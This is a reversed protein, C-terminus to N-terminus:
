ATKSRITCSPPLIIDRESLHRSIYQLPLINDRKHFVRPFATFILPCLITDKACIFLAYPSLVNNRESVSLYYFSYIITGKNRRKHASLSNPPLINTGKHICVAFSHSLITNREPKTRKKRQPCSLTITGKIRFHQSVYLFCLHYQIHPHHIRQSFLRFPVSM